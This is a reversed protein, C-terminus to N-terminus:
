PRRLQRPTPTDLITPLVRGGNRDAISSFDDFVTTRGGLGEPILRAAGGLGAELVTPWRDEYLHRLGTKAHAGFTLSDGFALITKM